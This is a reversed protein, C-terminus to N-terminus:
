LRCLVLEWLLGPEPSPTLSAVLFARPGTCTDSQVVSGLLLPIPPEWRAGGDQDHVLTAQAAGSRLFGLLPVGLCHLRRAGRFLLGPQTGTDLMHVVLLELVSPDSVCPAVFTVLGRCQAGGEFVLTLEAGGWVAVGRSLRVDRLASLHPGVGSQAPLQADVVVGESGLGVVTGFTRGSPNMVHMRRCHLV